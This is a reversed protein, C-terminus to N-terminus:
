LEVIQAKAKPGGRPALVTPTVGVIVVRREVRTIEAVVHVVVGFFDTVNEHEMGTEIEVEQEFDDGVDEDVVHVAM